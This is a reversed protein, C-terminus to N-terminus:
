HEQHQAYTGSVNRALFIDIFNGLQMLNASLKIEHPFHVTLCSEYKHPESKCKLTSTKIGLMRSLLGSSSRLLLRFM